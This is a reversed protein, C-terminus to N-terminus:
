LLKSKLEKIEESVDIRTSIKELDVLLTSLFQQHVASQENFPRHALRKKIQNWDAIFSKLEEDFYTDAFKEYIYNEAVENPHILDAKYFRYDRLDDMMLEFAPFYEVDTYDATLYHCAARLISKSIQNEPIGEKTHRVPSLTLIIRLDPNATKLQKHLIAFSKCIDKVSLLDKEFLKNPMKHCNAVYVPTSLLKYIFATGFTILAFNASQLKTSLDNINENITQALEKKSSAFFQSHFDYHFWTSQNEIFLREDALQYDPSLVKFISLPNFLTGLPNVEIKLKNNKLQNGVVDAFCSGLTILQSDLSIKNQAKPITFTTRFEAM